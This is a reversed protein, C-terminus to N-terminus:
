ASMGRLTLGLLRDASQPGSRERTWAVANILAFLDEATVGSRVVGGHRARDLLQEGIRNLRLCDDHLESADDGLGDALLAALGHYTAAHRVVASVWDALAEAPTRGALQEGHDFLEANRQALLEAILARRNPFHGYLTGIGVGAERAVRELPADAGADAFVADAASLLRQRNRLADARPRRQAPIEFKEM